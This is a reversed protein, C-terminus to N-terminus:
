WLPVKADRVHINQMHMCMHMHMHMHMRMHMYMYMHMCMHGYSGLGHTHMDLSTCMDFTISQTDYM